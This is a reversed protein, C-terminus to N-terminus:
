IGGTDTCFRWMATDGLEEEQTVFGTDNFRYLDALYLFHAPTPSILSTGQLYLYKFRSCEIDSILSTVGARVTEIHNLVTQALCFPLAVLLDAKTRLEYKSVSGTRSPVGDLFLM